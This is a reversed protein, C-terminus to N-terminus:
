QVSPSLRWYFRKNEKGKNDFKEIKAAGITRSLAAWGAEVAVVEAECARLYPDELYLKETVAVM